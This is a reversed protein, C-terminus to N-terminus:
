FRRVSFDPRLGPAGLIYQGSTGARFLPFLWNYYKARRGAKTERNEKQTVREKRRAQVFRYREFTKDAAKALAPFEEEFLSLQGALRSELLAALKRWESRPLSLTGLHM